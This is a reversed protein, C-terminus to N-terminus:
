KKAHYAGNTNNQACDLEHAQLSNWIGYVSAVAVALMLMIYTLVAVRYLWLDTKSLEHRTM